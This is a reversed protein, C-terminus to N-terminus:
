RLLEVIIENSIGLKGAPLRLLEGDQEVMGSAALQGVKEQLDVSYQKEIRALDIGSLQRLGLFLEEEL